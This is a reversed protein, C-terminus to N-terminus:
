HLPFGYVEAANGGVLKRKEDEPVDKFIRAIVEQSHPFTGEDHPYDNGWMLRDVGPIDRNRVGVADDGFTVYGQRKFYESPQLELRPEIWMHRKHNLEDLTQLAWALWGVGCEALVFRMGPHRELAGSAILRSLPDMAKAQGLLENFLDAGPGDWDPNVMGRDTKGPATTNTHLSLPIGTEELVAWLPEYDPLHYPRDPVALPMSVSRYGMKAVREVEAVADEIRLIPLVASVVFRDRHEGFVEQYWDNYLSTVACQYGPDKSYYVTFIGQPYIVEGNLGDLAQDALRLSVDTGGARHMARGVDDGDRWYRKKDDETLPNPAEIPLTTADTGDCVFYRTGDITELHPARDRYEAPLREYIEWPENAHGDASIVNLATM